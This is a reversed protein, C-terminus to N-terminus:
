PVKGLISVAGAEVLTDILSGVDAEATKADIDYLAMLEECLAQENTSEDLQKWIFDAVSNLNLLAYEANVEDTIPALIRENGAASEAFAEHNKKLLRNM